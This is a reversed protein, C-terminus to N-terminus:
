MILLEQTSLQPSPLNRQGDKQKGQLDQYRLMSVQTIAAEKVRVVLNRELKVVQSLFGAVGLGMLALCGEPGPSVGTIRGQPGVDLLM